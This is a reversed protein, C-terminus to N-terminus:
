EYYGQVYVETRYNPNTLTYDGGTNTRALGRVTTLARRYNSGEYSAVIQDGHLIQVEFRPIELCSLKKCPLDVLAADLTSGSGEYLKRQTNM